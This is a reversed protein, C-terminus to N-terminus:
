GSEVTCKYESGMSREKSRSCKGTWDGAVNENRGETVEQGTTMRRVEGRGKDANCM